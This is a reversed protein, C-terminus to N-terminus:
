RLSRRIRVNGPAVVCFSATLEAAHDRLVYVVADAKTSAPLGALRTLIVGAHIRGLRDVLEGFDKDGKALLFLLITWGVKVKSGKSQRILLRRVVSRRDTAHREIQKVDISM